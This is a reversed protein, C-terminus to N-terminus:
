QWEEPKENLIISPSCDLLAYQHAAEVATMMQKNTRGSTRWPEPLDQIIEKGTIPSVIKRPVISYPYPSGGDTEIEIAKLLVLFYIKTREIGTERAIQTVHAHFHTSIDISRRKHTEHGCTPCRKSM